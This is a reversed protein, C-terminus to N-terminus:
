RGGGSSSTGTTTAGARNNTGVRKFTLTKVDPISKGDLTRDRFEFTATDADVRTLVNTGTLKKGDNLTATAKITWTNGDRKWMGDGFGGGSEFTWSRVQKNGADWGIRHMGAGISFQGMTTTFEGILFNQNEGWHYAIRAVGEKSGTGAWEGILWELEALHERNSPPAYVAERVSSLHWKGDQKVHVITYRARSPPGGNAPMVSTIGDEIAVEPTVFRISDIDIRLTLGKNESFLNTFVKEIAARGKITKGTQNTYDGDPTWYASLGKADAKHFANVFGEANKLIAKEEEPNNKVGQSWAPPAFALCACPVTLLRLWRANM